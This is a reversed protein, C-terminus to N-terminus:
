MKAWSGGIHGPDIAIRLGELPRDAPAPPLEATTRWHRPPTKEQEPSAFRLHFRLGSDVTGPAIVAEHDNLAVFNKWAEGTTFVRTLLREFEQRSITEQCTDLTAWDPENGLPALRVPPKPPTPEPTADPAVAAPTPLPSPAPSSPRLLWGGTFGLLLLLPPLSKRAFSM